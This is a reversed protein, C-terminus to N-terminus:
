GIVAKEHILKGEIFRRITLNNAIKISPEGELIWESLLKGVIPAM